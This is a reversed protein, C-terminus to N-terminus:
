FHMLYRVFGSDNTELYTSDIALPATRCNGAVSIAGTMPMGDDMSRDIKAVSSCKVSHFEPQTTYAASELGSLLLIHGRVINTPFYFSGNIYRELRYGGGLGNAPQGQGFAMDDVNTVGEILGAASLHHWFAFREDTVVMPTTNIVGGPGVVRDGNGGRSCPATTCNNLRVSPNSIDGPLRSYIDKFTIAGSEYSKLERITRNIEMNEILKMGGFTGGILLGIIIMVISMEVLTFGDLNQKHPCGM